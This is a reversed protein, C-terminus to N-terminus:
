RNFRLWKEHRERNGPKVMVKEWAEHANSRFGRQKSHIDALECGIGLVLYFEKDQDYRCNARIWEALATEDDDAIGDAFAQQAASKYQTKLDM